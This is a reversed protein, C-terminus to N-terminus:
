DSEEDDYKKKLDEQIYENCSKIFNELNLIDMNKIDNIICMFKNNNEFNLNVSIEVVYSSGDYHNLIKFECNDSNKYFMLSNDGCGVGGYSYSESEDLIFNGIEILVNLNRYINEDIIEVLIKPIYNLKINYMTNNDYTAVSILKYSSM